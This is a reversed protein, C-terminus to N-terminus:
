HSQTWSRAPACLTSMRLQARARTKSPLTPGRDASATRNVREPEAGAGGAPHHDSAAIGRELGASFARADRDTADDLLFHGGVRSRFLTTYPFLTSRPPRQIM